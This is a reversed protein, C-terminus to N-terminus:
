AGLLLQAEDATLGLRDLLAERASAKAADAKAEAALEKKHQAVWADYQAQEDDRMLRNVGDVNTYNNM